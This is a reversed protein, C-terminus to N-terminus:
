KKQTLKLLHYCKEANQSLEDILDKRRDIKGMLRSFYEFNSEDSKYTFLTSKRKKKKKKSEYKKLIEQPVEIDKSLKGEAIVKQRAKESEDILKELKAARKPSMANLNLYGDELSAVAYLLVNKFRWGKPDDKTLEYSVMSTTIYCKAIAELEDRSGHFDKMLNVFNHGLVCTIEGKEFGHAEILYVSGKDDLTVDISKGGISVNVSM